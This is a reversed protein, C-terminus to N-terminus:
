LSIETKLTVHMGRQEYEGWWPRGDEYFSGMLDEATLLMTIGPSLRYRLEAAILPLSSVPQLFYEGSLVAGFGQGERNFSLELEFSQGPEFREQDSFLRGNWNLDLAVREAPTLQLGVDVDAEEIGVQSFPFLGSDPDRQSLDDPVALGNMKKWEIGAQLKMRPGATYGIRGLAKWGRELELGASEGLLPYADWLERYLVNEVQYGGELLVEWREGVVGELQVNWPFLLEHATSWNLGLLFSLDFRRGYYSNRLELIAQQLTNEVPAEQYSYGASLDLDFKEHEYLLAAVADLFLEERETSTGINQSGSHAEVSSSVSFPTAFSYTYEGRGHLFRHIVSVADPFDQLGTEREMFDASSRFSHPANGLEISGSLEERRDFYGSGPPNSGYGDIGEHSFRFQYIPLEGRKYLAIDGILHNDSGGGIIGESFFSAGTQRKISRQEPIEVQLSPGETSLGGAEPLQSGLRSLEIFDEDPLVVELEEQEIASYEFVVTPLDIDPDEPEVATETDETKTEPSSEQAALDPLTLPSLGLTMMIIFIQIRSFIKAELISM